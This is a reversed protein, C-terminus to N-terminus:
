HHYNIFRKGMLESSLPPTLPGTGQTDIKYDEQGTHVRRKLKEWCVQTKFLLEQWGGESGKRNLQSEKGQEEKRGKGGEKNGEKETEASVSKEEIERRGWWERREGKRGGGKGEKKGEMDGTKVRTREQWM